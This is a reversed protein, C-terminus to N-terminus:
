KPKPTSHTLRAVLFPYYRERIPSSLQHQSACALGYKVAKHALTNTGELYQFCNRLQTGCAAFHYKPLQLRHKRRPAARGLITPSKLPQMAQPAQLFGLAGVNDGGCTLLGQTRISGEM